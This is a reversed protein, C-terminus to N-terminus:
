VAPSYAPLPSSVPQPRFTRKSAHSRDPPLKALLARVRREVVADRRKFTSGSRKLAAQKHGVQVLIQRALDRARVHDGSRVAAELQALLGPIDPHDSHYLIQNM